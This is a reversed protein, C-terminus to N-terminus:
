ESRGGPEMLATIQARTPYNILVGRRSGQFVFLSGAAAAAAGGGRVPEALHRRKGAGGHAIVPVDVAAAVREVLDLDYGGMLGERDVATLLIEGAGLDEARRAWSVPDSGTDTTGGHVVVREEGGLQRVDISAVVAQSGFREAASRVVAPQDALVSNLVVKELGVKLTEEMQDVSTLGGGYALPIFCEEALHKLTAPSTPRRTRAGAIDLLVIEDVEFDNFISLVNVPDGVYMPSAFQITKVLM